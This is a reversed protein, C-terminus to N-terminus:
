AEKEYLFVEVIKTEVVDPVQFSVLMNSLSENIREHAQPVGNETV